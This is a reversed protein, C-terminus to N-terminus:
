ALAEEARAAMSSTTNNKAIVKISDLIKQIGAARYATEPDNMLVAHGGDMQLSTFSENTLSQWAEMQEQTTIADSTPWVSVIPSEVPIRKCRYGTAVQSLGRLKPLISAMVARNQMDKEPMVAMHLLEQTVERTTMNHYKFGPGDPGHLSPSPSAFVVIAFPKQSLRRGVEYALVSGFCSGVLVIPRDTLPEVAEVIQEMFLEFPLNEDASFETYKLVHVSIDSPVLDCWPDLAGAAVGPPLLCVVRARPPMMRPASLEVFSSSPMTGTPQCLSILDSVTDVALLKHLDLEVSLEERLRCTLGVLNLSDLGLTDLHDDITPQCELSEGVIALIQDKVAHHTAEVNKQEENIFNQVAKKFADELQSVLAPTVRNADYQFGLHLQDGSLDWDTSVPVMADVAFYRREVEHVDGNEADPEAFQIFNFVVDFSAANGVWASLKEKSVAKHAFVARDFRDFGQAEAFFDNSDTTPVPLVNLFNGIADLSREVEPRLSFVAGIASPKEGLVQTIAEIHLAFLIAKTSIGARRSRSAIAGVIERSILVNAQRMEAQQSRARAPALAKRPPLAALQEKWFTEAASSTDAALEDATLASYVALDDTPNVELGVTRRVLETILANLSYGDLTAHHDEVMLDFRDNALEFIGYRVLEGKDAHFSVRQLSRVHEAVMAEADEPSHARLDHYDFTTDILAPDHVFSIEDAEFSLRAALVPHARKVDHLAQRFRDADFASAVTTVTANHFVQADKRSITALLMVRQMSSPRWRRIVNSIPEFATKTTSPAQAVPTQIVPEAGVLPLLAAITPTGHLDRLSIKIGVELAKSQMLIARISDGGNNFFDDNITLTPRRLVSRWINLLRERPEVQSEENTTTIQAEVLEDEAEEHEDILKLLKLRDLKGQPTMPIQEVVVIAQPVMFSPLTSRLASSVSVASIDAFRQDPLRRATVAAVLRPSGEIRKDLLVAANAVDEQDLIRSRIEGLELRQGTLKVQEDKRGIFEYSGDALRRVHDGSRYSRAGSSNQTFNGDEKPSAGLYGLAVGAGGIQLEGVAGTPIEYGKANVAAVHISELPFGLTPYPTNRVRAVLTNVTAETPGYVNWVECGRWRSVNDWLSQDIAEGGVLITRPLGKPQSGFGVAIMAKLITPTVDLASIQMKEVYDMLAVPDTRVDAPIPILTKGLTVQFFQKMSADFGLPANVSIRIPTTPSGYIRLDLARLLNVVSYHAVSVGKPTGTSGSTFLIYAPENSSVKVPAIEKLPHGLAPLVTLGEIRGARILDVSEAVAGTAGSIRVIERVRDDPHERLIPVCVMGAYLTGLMAVAADFSRDAFILVRAGTDLQSILQSALAASAIALDEFSHVSSETVFAPSNPIRKATEQLLDIITETGHQHRPFEPLKRGGLDDVTSNQTAAIGRLATLIKSALGEVISDDIESLESIVKVYTGSTFCVIQVHLKPSATTSIDIHAPSFLSHLQPVKVVEILCEQQATIPQDASVARLLSSDLSEEIRATFDSADEIGRPFQFTVCQRFPGAVTAFKDFIRGDLSATCVIADQEDQLFLPELVACAATVIKPGAEILASTAADFVTAQRRQWGQGPVTKIDLPTSDISEHKASEEQELSWESFHQFTLDEQNDEPTLLLLLGDIDSVYPPTSLGLRVLGTGDTKHQFVIRLVENDNTSFPRDIAADFETPHSTNIWNTQGSGVSQLSNLLPDRIQVITRFMPQSAIREELIRRTADPAVGERWTVIVRSNLGDQEYTLLSRAQPRSVPFGETLGEGQKHSLDKGHNLQVNNM